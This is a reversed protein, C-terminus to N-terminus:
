MGSRLRRRAIAVGRTLEPFSTGTVTNAGASQPRETTSWFQMLAVKACWGERTEGIRESGNRARRGAAFPSRGSISFAGVDERNSPSRKSTLFRALIWSASRTHRRFEIRWPRHQRVFSRPCCSAKEGRPKRARSILAHRGMRPRLRLRFTVGHRRSPNTELDPAAQLCTTSWVLSMQFVCM